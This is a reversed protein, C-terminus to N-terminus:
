SMEQSSISVNVDQAAEPSVNADNYVVLRKKCVEVPSFLAESHTNEIAFLKWSSRMLM